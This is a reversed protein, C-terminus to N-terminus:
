RWRAITTSSYPVTSPTAVSSSTTRMSNPGPWRSGFATNKELKRLYGHAACQEGVLAASRRAALGVVEFKDPHHAVVDLVQRGVSGTSGLVTIRKKRAL